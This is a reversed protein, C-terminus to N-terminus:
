NGVMEAKKVGKQWMFFVIPILILIWAVGLFIITLSEQWSITGSLMRIPTNILIPFPSYFLITQIIKPYFVIPALFGAAFHSLMWWGHKIWTGETTWFVAMGIICGILYYIVSSIILTPLLLFTNITLKPIVIYNSIFLFVILMILLTSLLRFPRYGQEEAYNYFLFNVPKVLYSALKGDKITYQMWEYVHSVTLIEIIPMFFFYSVMMQKDLGGIEANNGYVKLWIFPLLWLGGIDGLMWIVSKARYATSEALSIKFTTWYKAIKM